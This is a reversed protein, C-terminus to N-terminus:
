AAKKYKLDGKKEKENYWGEFLILEPHTDLSAYDIVKIKEQDAIWQDFVRVDVIDEDDRHPRKVVMFKTWHDSVTAIKEWEKAVQRSLYGGLATPKTKSKKKIGFM